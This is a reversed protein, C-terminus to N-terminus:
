CDTSTPDPCVAFLDYTTPETVALLPALRPADVWDKLIWDPGDAPRANFRVGPALHCLRTLVADTEARFLPLNCEISLLRVPASLGAVVQQEFGEVDIKIYDPRGHRVILEDLTTIPVEVSGIVQADPAAGAWKESLTNFGHHEKRHLVATGPQEGIATQEVTVSRGFRYRLIDATDPDPEVCVVRAGLEQFVQAKDGVNAGVDFVSRIAFEQFLRGYFARDAALVRAYGSGCARAYWEYARSYRFFRYLGTADAAARLM